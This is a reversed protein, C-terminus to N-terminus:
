NKDGKEQTTFYNLPTTKKKKKKKKQPKKKFFFFCSRIQTLNTAM